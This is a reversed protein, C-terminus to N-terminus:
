VTAVTIYAFANGYVGQEPFMRLAKIITVIPFMLYRVTTVSSGMNNNLIPYDRPSHRLKLSVFYPAATVVSRTNAQTLLTV